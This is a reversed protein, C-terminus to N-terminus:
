EDPKEKKDLKKIEKLLNYFAAAFGLVTFLLFFIPSTELQEDIFYGLGLFILIMIAFQLGITYAVFDKELQKKNFDNKLVHM